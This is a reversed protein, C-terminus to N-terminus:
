SLPNLAVDRWINKGIWYGIQPRKNVCEINELGIIGVFVSNDTNM